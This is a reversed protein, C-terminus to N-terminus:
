VVVCVQSHSHRKESNGWRCLWASERTATEALVSSAGEALPPLGHSTAFAWEHAVDIHCEMEPGGECESDDVCPRCMNGDTGKPWPACIHIPGCDALQTSRSCPAASVVRASLWSEAFSFLMSTCPTRLPASQPSPHLASSASSLGSSLPSCRLSYSRRGRQRHWGEVQPQAVGQGHCRVAAAGIFQRRGQLAARPALADPAQGIARAATGM